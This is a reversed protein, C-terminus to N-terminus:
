RLRRAFRETLDSTTAPTDRLQGFSRRVDDPSYSRFGAEMEALKRDVFIQNARARALLAARYPGSENEATDQDRRIEDMTARIEDMPTRSSSDLEGKVFRRRSRGTSEVATTAATEAVLKRIETIKEADDLSGHLVRVIEKSLAETTSAQSAGNTLDEGDRAGLNDTASM